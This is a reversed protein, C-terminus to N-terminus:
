HSVTDASALALPDRSYAVPASSDARPIVTRLQAHGRFLRPDPRGARGTFCLLRRIWLRGCMIWM